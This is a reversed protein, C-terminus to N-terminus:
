LRFRQLIGIGLVSPVLMNFVYLLFTSGFASITSIGFQGMVLLAVSERVGLETFTISPIGAQVWFTLQILALGVWPNIEVEFAMLLLLYQTAFVAYRLCALLLVKLMMKPHVAELASQLRGFWASDWPIWQLIRSWKAPFLLTTWVLLVSAGAVMRIVPIGQIPLGVGLLWEPGYQYLLSELGIWGFLLTAALQAFRGLMTYAGAALRHGPQLLWLRGAYEGLRNPTFIGTSIGAVVAQLAEMPRLAPYAKRLMLRWKMAELWLNPFAMLFALGVWWAHQLSITAFSIQWLEKEEWLKRGVYALVLISLLVKVLQTLPSNRLSQSWTIVAQVRVSFGKM